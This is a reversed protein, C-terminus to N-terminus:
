SFSYLHVVADFAGPTGNILAFGLSIYTGESTLIEKGTDKDMLTGKITYEKGATLNECHVEDHIVAKKQETGVHDQTQGDAAETWVEPYHVSQEEDEIDAHAAVKIDNHYLDEFAVVTTGALLSADLEFVLEVTGDKKEATFSVEARVAKGDADLVPSNTEQNMLTGSVKYEKGIILNHYTVVDTVMAKESVTGTHDRTLGDAADTTVGPYYVSQEEDSLDAHGAVRVKDLYLDEFVVVSRGELFGAEVKYTLDITGEEKEPRFAASATIEKGDRGLVPKGDDKNMLKGTLTYEKGPILNRYTVTDIITTEETSIGVHDKTKGDVASTRVAPYHVSQDEDEIDAHVAIKINNHYLDEFVVATGGELLRSDLTFVLDVTGDKKDATFEKESTIQKGKADRVPEGTEKNMLVGKVSYKKGIVLNHYTVTDNVTAKEAATGAHEGTLGDSADTTVKPYSVTQNQDKIDAHSAVKANNYYLDEFVVVSSGELIGKEIQYVLKVSGATKEPKFTISATISKQNQDLVDRGDKQNVLKGTVTYERGPTLNKYTVTDVITTKQASTGLHDGTTGDVANTRIEPYDVTQDADNIDAHSTVMISNHYLDEFVVVTGGQLIGADVKYTLRVSGEAKEPRFSVSAAIEKGAKDLVAKGDAKNMLKGSVTYELGPILNEYTVTDIITTEESSNGTKEGTKGDVANTRIRPYHVSQGEDNIDAHVAVEKGDQYMNEFVVVTKGELLTSDLTFALEVTGDAKEATFETKSTIQKGEADLLPTGSAKDMLVGKVTYKKGASLKHYTVVDTVSAKAAVTGAHDKTSGDKADTTVDPYSVTQNQDKIDAHSAVKIDNHYLDEFVVVTAGALLGKEIQYVLEVSGAEKEPRFTVSATISKNDKGLVEKGNERNMLVGKVTYEKGPILNQYSVKDVITTKQTSPGTKGGTTGDVANTRIRPYHVSQEEDSIDAHVAVKVKGHYLDEFAVVTKGELLSSDVAFELTIEGDKKEAKFSKEATVPNGSKDTISKGTAKDMLTGTVTYEKGIVLNHCTVIDRVISKESVTGTHDETLGDEANTEVAPAHVTQKEDNVDKHSAIEKGKQDRVTEFVVADTGAFSSAPMFVFDMLVTGNGSDSAMFEKSATVEKGSADTVPKGTGKDMLSGELTYSKGPALMTYSVTDTITVSGDSRVVHDGTEQDVAETRVSPGLPVDKMELVSTEKAKVVLEYVDSDLYFGKPAKIEKVYYTGPALRVKLSDGDKITTIESVKEEETCSRSSYVGYVAGELDYSSNGETLSSDASRKIIKYEGYPVPEDAAKVTVSGGAPVSATFVETSLQFNEPAEIEKVYYTGPYLIVYETKGTEDTELTAAKSKCEPDTYIGYKAGKLSYTEDGDTLDPDSSVKRVRAKGHEIITCYCQCLGGDAKHGTTMFCTVNEPVPLSAIKDLYKDVDNLFKKNCGFDWKDGHSNIRGTATEFFTKSAAIHTILLDANADGNIQKAYNTGGGFAGYYFIKIITPDTVKAITLETEGVEYGPFTPEMCLLTLNNGESDVIEVPKTHWTGYGLDSYEVNYKGTVTFSDPMDPASSSVSLLRKRGTFARVAKQREAESIWEPETLANAAEEEEGETEETESIEETLSDESATEDTDEAEANEEEESIDKDDSKVESGTESERNESVETQDETKEDAADSSESVPEKGESGSQHAEDEEESATKDGTTESGSTVDPASSSVSASLKREQVIIRRNFRYSHNGSVPEAHYVATYTGPRSASFASGGSDKAQYFRVKVKASSYSIGRMDKSIDFNEDSYITIDEAKVIEDDALKDRVSSIEPYAETYGSDNGKGSEAALVAAPSYVSTFLTIMSLIGAAIRGFRNKTKM